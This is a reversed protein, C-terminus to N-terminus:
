CCQCKRQPLEQQHILIKSQTYLDYQEIETSVHQLGCVHDKIAKLLLETHIVAPLEVTM